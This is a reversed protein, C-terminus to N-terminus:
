GLIERLNGAGDDHQLVYHCGLCLIERIEDIIEDVDGGTVKIAVVGPKLSGVFIDRVGKIRRLAQEIESVTMAGAPDM